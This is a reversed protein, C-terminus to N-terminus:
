FILSKLRKMRKKNLGMDSYGLRSASKFHVKKNTDDFYMWVDDKFRMFPTTFVFHFYDVGSDKLEVRHESLVKDKVTKMLAEKEGSYAWPDMRHKTSSVMTSVCNPSDPCTKIEKVIPNAMIVECILISSIFLIKKILHM